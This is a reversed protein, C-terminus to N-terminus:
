RRIKKIISDVPYIWYFQERDFEMPRYAPNYSSLSIRRPDGGILSFIKFAFGEEIINAIVLDGHRVPITPLVVALDGDKFQPEMSDGRLRIAFATRDTVVVPLRDQWEDPIKEFATALGAQAWGVVPVWTAEESPPRRRGREEEEEQDSFAVVTQSHQQQKKAKVQQAQHMELLRKLRTSPKKKGLELQSIYDGGVGLLQGLEQQTLGSQTRFNRLQSQFETPSFPVITM